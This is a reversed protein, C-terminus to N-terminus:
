AEEETYEEAEEDELDSVYEKIIESAIATEFGRQMAFRFIKARAEFTAIGEKSQRIKAYIVKRAVEMYRDDEIESMSQEIAQRPLRKAWLGQIIKNRGWGSYELKDHAYARAFRFDDVFNLEELKHIVKDADCATVGWAAMKKRLDPTCQESRSCLDATRSLAQEYNLPRKTNRM